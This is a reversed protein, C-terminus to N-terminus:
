FIDDIIDTIESTWTDGCTEKLYKISPIYERWTCSELVCGILSKAFPISTCLCELSIPDCGSDDLSGFVCLGTCYPPDTAVAFSSVLIGVLTAFLLSFKM